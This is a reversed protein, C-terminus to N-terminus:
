LNKHCYAMETVTFPLALAAVDGQRDEKKAGDHQFRGCVVGRRIQIQVPRAFLVGFMRRRRYASWM